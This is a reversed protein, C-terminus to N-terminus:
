EWLRCSGGCKGREVIAIHNGVLNKMYGDYSEGDVEGAEYVFEAFYGCSLEKSENDSQLMVIIDSDTIVISSAIVYGKKFKVDSGLGVAYEKFNKTNVNDWPHTDTVTLHAFAEASKKVEKAPRYIKIEDKNQLHEPLNPIEFNKYVQINGSNSIRVDKFIAFGNPTITLQSDKISHTDNVLLM